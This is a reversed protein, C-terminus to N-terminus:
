RSKNFNRLCTKARLARQAVTVQSDNVSLAEGYDSGLPSSRRPLAPAHTAARPWNRQLCQPPSASLGSLRLGLGSDSALEAGRQPRRGLRVPGKRHMTPKALHESGRLRGVLEEFADSVAPAYEFWTLFDFPQSLDRSHHLRRAVMPLYGLSIAIHHSREEFIARREDQALAWWDASKKIPILAAHISRLM